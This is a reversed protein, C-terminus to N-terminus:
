QKKFIIHKAILVRELKRISQFETPLDFVELKNAVSQCPIKCKQCKKRCTKCIYTSSDFLMICFLPPIELNYKNQDFIILSRRYLSRVM